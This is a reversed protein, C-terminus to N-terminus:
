RIKLGHKRLAIVLEEKRPLLEPNIRLFPLGAAQLAKLTFNNSLQHKINAESEEMNIALVPKFSDVELIAMDLTRDKLRQLYEQYNPNATVTILESMQIHPCIIYGQDELVDSLLQYFVQEKANMVQDKRRYPLKSTDVWADSIDIIDGSKGPDKKPKIQERITDIVLKSIIFIIVLAILQAM